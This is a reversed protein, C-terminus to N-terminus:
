GTALRRKDDASLMEILAESTMPRAFLFGQFRDCGLETLIERQEETEVGEATVGIELSRAIECIAAVLKHHAASDPLPAVLERAIKLRSPNLALLSLLSAHGTGFDDIEIDVALEEFLDLAHRAEDDFSDSFMTEVVEFVLRGRPHADSVLFEALTPERLRASSINLSVKPVEIGLADWEALDRVSKEFIAQDISAMVRLREAIPLFVGPSLVGRLPHRWRALAEVGCLAGTVADFQPQYVPFFEGRRLALAMEDSLTKCEEVERRLTDSFFEFRGRGTEKARYLAIDANAILRSPDIERGEICAIGIGIGISAGFQCLEGHYQIPQSLLDIVRAAIAELSRRDGDSSRVIVFEDGGIRAVFDSKETTERLIDGVHRLVHDGAAHGLTDNIEKFRDLDIHLVAVGEGSERAQESRREMEREFSRRNSLGTLPDHLSEHEATARLEELAANRHAVADHAASLSQAQASLTDIARRVAHHAPLFIFFAEFALVLLAFVFATNQIVSLTHSHTTADLQHAESAEQLAQPLIRAAATRIRMHAAEAAEPSSELAAVIRADAIFKRMIPDLAPGRGGQFYPESLAPSTRATQALREHVRELADIEADMRDSSAKVRLTSAMEAYSLIRGVRVKQNVSESIRDSSGKINGVSSLSAVHSAAIFLFILGLAFLYRAMLSRPNLPGSSSVSFLRDLM